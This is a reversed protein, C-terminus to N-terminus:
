ADSPSDLNRIRQILDTASHDKPDGVIAIEAGIERVVAAEPLTEASYDRGKAHVHPKLARILDSPTPESFITVYTVCELAALMEAREQEPVVPRGPGKYSRVSSDSNLGVVLLDGHSRADELSRIHGVHLLDFTGNTFVIRAGGSRAEATHELLAERELIIKHRTLSM